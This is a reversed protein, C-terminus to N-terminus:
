RVVWLKFLRERSKRIYLEKDNM